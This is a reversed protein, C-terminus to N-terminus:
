GRILFAGAAGLSLVTTVLPSYAIIHCVNNLQVASMPSTWSVVERQQEYCFDEIMKGLIKRLERVRKPKCRHQKDKKM